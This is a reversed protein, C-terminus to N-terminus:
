KSEGDDKSENETEEVIEADAMGNSGKAPGPKKKWSGDSNCVHTKGDAEYVWRDDEEAGNTAAPEPDITVGKYQMIEDKLAAKKKEQDRQLELRAIDLNGQLKMEEASQENEGNEWVDFGKVGYIFIVAILLWTHAPWFEIGDEEVMADLLKALIEKEEQDLKWDDRESGPVVSGVRSMLIDSFAIITAPEILSQVVEKKADQIKQQKPTLKPEEKDESNDDPDGTEGDPKPDGAESDPTEKETTEADPPPEPTINFDDPNVKAQTRADAQTDEPPTELIDLLDDPMRAKTRQM